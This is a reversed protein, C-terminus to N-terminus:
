EPGMDLEEEDEDPWEDIYVQEPDIGLDVLKGEAEAATHLYPHSLMIDYLCMQAEWGAGTLKEVLDAAQELRAHLDKGLARLEEPTVDEGERLEQGPKGFLMINLTVTM